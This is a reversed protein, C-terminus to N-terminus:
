AISDSEELRNLRVPLKFSPQCAAMKQDYSSFAIDRGTTERLYILLAHCCGEM